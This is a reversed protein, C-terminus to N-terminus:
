DVLRDQDAASEQSSPFTIATGKLGTTVELHFSVRGLDLYVSHVLLDTTYHSKFKTARKKTVAILPRVHVSHHPLIKKFVSDAAGDFNATILLTFNM